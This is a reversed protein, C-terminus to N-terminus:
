DMFSEIGEWGTPFDESAWTTSADIWIRPSRVIARAWGCARSDPVVEEFCVDTTTEKTQIPTPNTPNNQGLDEHVHLSFKSNGNHFQEIPDCPCWRDTKM